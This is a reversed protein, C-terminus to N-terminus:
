IILNLIEQTPLIYVGSGRLGDLGKLGCPGTNIQNSHNQSSPKPTAFGSDCMDVVVTFKDDLSSQMLNQHWEFM